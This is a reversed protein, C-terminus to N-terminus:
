SRVKALVFRVDDFVCTCVLRDGGTGEVSLTTKTERACGKLVSQVVVSGEDFEQTEEGKVIFVDPGVPNATREFCAVRETQLTEM